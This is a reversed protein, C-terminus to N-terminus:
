EYLCGGFCRRKAWFRRSGREIQDKLDGLDELEAPASRSLGTTKRNGAKKISSNVKLYPDGNNVRCPECTAKGPTAPKKGCSTCIGRSRFDARMEKTM